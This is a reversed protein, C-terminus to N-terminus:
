FNLNFKNYTQTYKKLENDFKTRLSQPSIVVMDPFFRRLLMLVMDDSTIMYSIKSWGNECEGIIKQSRFFRKQKFYKVMNPSVAVICEYPLNKYGDFFTESNKVFNETYDDIYFSSKKIVIKSVFCLRLVMYGNNEHSQSLTALQWNGKSYIIKLIKVNKLLVEDYILDCYRKFKIAKQIMGFIKLNPSQEHPSGKILFVEALEKRLKEDVKKHTKPMFKAFGPNIIHLMDILKESENQKENPMVFRKFLERNKCIYSGQSICFIAEDGFYERLDQLYRRITRQSLGSKLAYNKVVVESGSTLEKLLELIEFVKKNGM